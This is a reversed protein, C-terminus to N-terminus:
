IAFVLFLITLSVAYASRSLRYAHLYPSLRQSSVETRGQLVRAGFRVPGATHRPSRAASRSRRPLLNIALYAAIMEALVLSMEEDDVTTSRM